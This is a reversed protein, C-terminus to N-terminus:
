VGVSGTAFSSSCGLGPTAARARQAVAQPPRLTRPWHCARANCDLRLALEVAMRLCLAMPSRRVVGACGAPSYMM